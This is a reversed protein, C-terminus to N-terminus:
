SKAEAGEKVSSAPKEVASWQQPSNTFNSGPKTGKSQSANDGNLNGYAPNSMIRAQREVFGM